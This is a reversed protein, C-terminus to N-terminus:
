KKNGSVKSSDGGPNPRAGKDAKNGNQGGNKDFPNAQPQQPQPNPKSDGVIEIAREKPLGFFLMITSILSETTIIGQNHQAFLQTMGTIGGVLELLRSGTVKENDADADAAEKLKELIAKAEDQTYGLERTLFDQPHMINELNSNLYESLCQTRTAAITAQKEKSMEVLPPWVVKLGDKPEPLVKAWILRNIFPVVIRPTVYTNQRQTIRESWTDSDQSSALEGRESGMFIRMPVDIAICIGEIHVKIQPTPDVVQPSLSKATMGKTNLFRQLGDMYNTLATRMAAEDVEVEGGLQPHTEMSIGPFAGKWYMEASGGYLKRTDLLRDFVPLQRPIGYLESSDTNDAVHIVRSWHITKSDMQVVSEGVAANPRNYQVLYEQPMGYRPSDPETDYSSVQCLAQDVVRIYRLKIGTRPKIPERMDKSDDLGLIILGYHGIGSLIDAKKLYGWIPNGVESNFHNKIGGSELLGRAIEKWAKEFETEVDEDEVDYVEPQVKWSETPLLSVVRNAICNREFQTYYQDPTISSSEPYGCEKGIDRRTDLEASLFGLRTFITNAIFEYSKIASQSLKTM